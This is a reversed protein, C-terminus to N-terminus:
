KHYSGGLMVLECRNVEFEYRLGLGQRKTEIKKAENSITTKIERLYM